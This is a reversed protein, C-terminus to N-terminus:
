AHNSQKGSKNILFIIEDEFLLEDVLAHNLQNEHILNRHQDLLSHSGSLDQTPLSVALLDVNLNSWFERNCGSRRKEMRHAEKFFIGLDAHIQPPNVLIDRNEAIPKIAITKFFLNIFDIRPQVIDYAYYEISTPLGMWPFALPHLGCAMDLMIRPKGTKEFLRAYFERMYALREATSAHKSLVKRCFGYIEPSDPSPDKIRLLEKSLANYNPEGLYPAVINHLKRRVSKHLHKQSNHKPAENRIVDEITNPNLGLKRYKRSELISDIMEQFNIEEENM